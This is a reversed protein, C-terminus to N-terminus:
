RPIRTGQSRLQLMAELILKEETMYLDFDLLFCFSIELKSLELESVGGVKAVRSHPYGLDELAKTAVLAAALALRHMNKPTVSLSKEVLVMRTIYYSAALIVATSMPCFRHLRELYDTIAIPPVSKSLFRRALVALQFAEGKSRGGAGDTHGFHLDMSSMNDQDTSPSQVGSSNPELASLNDLNNCLLQLVFEPALDDLIMGSMQPLANEETGPSDLELARTAPSANETQTMAAM